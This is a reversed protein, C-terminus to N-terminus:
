GLHLTAAHRLFHGYRDAAAELLREEHATLSRYPVVRVELADPTVSRTMTGVVQGDVLAMGTSPERGRGLLGDADLM